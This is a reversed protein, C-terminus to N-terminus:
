PLCEPPPKNYDKGERTCGSPDVAHKLCYDLDTMLRCFWSTLRREVSREPIVAGPQCAPLHKHRDWSCYKKVSDGWRITYGAREMCADTLFIRNLRSDPDKIGMGYEYAWADPSPSPAGCELLAKKVELQTTGPKTWAECAESAPKDLNALRYGACGTLLLTVILAVYPRVAPM